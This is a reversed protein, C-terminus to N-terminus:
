GETEPIEVWIGCEPCEFTEEYIHSDLYIDTQCNPCNGVLPIM